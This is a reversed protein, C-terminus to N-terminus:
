LGQRKRAPSPNTQDTGTKPLGGFFGQLSTVVFSRLTLPKAGSSTKLRSVQSFIM